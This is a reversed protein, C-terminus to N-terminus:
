RTATGFGRRTATDRGPRIRGRHGFSTCAQDLQCPNMAVIDSSTDSSIAEQLIYHLSWSCIYYM